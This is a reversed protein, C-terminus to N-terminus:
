YRVSSFTIFFRFEYQKYVFVIAFVYSEEAASFRLIVAGYKNIVTAIM